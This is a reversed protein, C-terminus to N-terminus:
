PIRLCYGLARITFCEGLIDCKKFFDVHVNSISVSDGKSAM